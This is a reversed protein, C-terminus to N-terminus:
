LLAGRGCDKKIINYTQGAPKNFILCRCLHKGIFKTVNKLVVKKYFEESHTNKFYAFM